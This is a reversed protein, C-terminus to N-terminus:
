SDQVLAQHDFGVFLDMMSYVANGACQGTFLKVYPMSAADKVTVSNLQQLDHV